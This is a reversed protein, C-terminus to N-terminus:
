YRANLATQVCTPQMTLWTVPPVMSQGQWPLRNLIVSPATTTPGAGLGSGSFCILITPPLTTSNDKLRRAL